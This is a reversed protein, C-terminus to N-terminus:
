PLKGNVATWVVNGVIERLRPEMEWAARLAARSAQEVIAPDTVDLGAEAALEVGKAAIAKLLLAEPTGLALEMNAAPITDATTNTMTGTYVRTFM